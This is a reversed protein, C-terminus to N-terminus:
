CRIRVPVFELDGYREPYEKWPGECVSDHVCRRCQAFKSKGYIRRENTFDDTDQRKHGRIRTDPIAHESCFGEYGKMLCMPVAEAMVTRGAADGIRLGEIMYPAAIEIRPVMSDFNKMANGTPHVFAFQFQPVGLEVLLAAIRPIDRYNPKVVVTNTMVRQGMRLLNRIGAVTQSFSGKARTLFDHQDGCWGHLAPSFETAGAAIAKRCFEPSSFMRGNTQVQVSLYGMKRAEKLLEFFDERITVEGGTLVISDCVPRAEGMDNVLEEFKRNGFIKSDAQVCFRCNNNCSFGCKLDLRAM